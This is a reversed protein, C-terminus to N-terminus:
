PLVQGILPSLVHRDTSRLPLPISFEAFKLSPLKEKLGTLIDTEPKSASARVWVAGVKKKERDELFNVTNEIEYVVQEMKQLLNMPRQADELFPKFRYLSIEADLVALLSIYEEEINVIMAHGPPELRIMNALNFIPVGVTRVTMGIREFLSEYEGIVEAKAAAAFVKVQGNSKLVDYSVRLDAPMLPVLKNLRWRLINERESPLSPLSDFTLVFVKLCTEPILLAAANGDLGLRGKGERLAKELAAANGVNKKDFSPELAGVPLPLIFHSAIRNEKKAYHVGGIYTRSFLFSAAPYLPKTFYSKLRDFLPAM